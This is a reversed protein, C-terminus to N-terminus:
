NWIPVLYGEILPKAALFAPILPAANPDLMEDADLSLVWESDVQELAVNRARAFDNEWAIVKVSAGYQRAIDLTGDTSGTDCISIADVVARTSDLCRALTAEANKVIMSLTLRIM